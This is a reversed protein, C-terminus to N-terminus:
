LLENGKGCLQYLTNVSAQLLKFGAYSEFIAGRYEFGKSVFANPHCLYGAYDTSNYAIFTKRFPSNWKIQIGIEALLEGPVGVICVDKGITLFHLPEPCIDMGDKRVAFNPAEPDHRLRLPVEVMSTQLMVDKVLFRDPNRQANSMGEIVAAAIAEGMRQSAAFGIEYERPFMNGAAGTVFCCEAGTETRICDRVVGPFDATITCGALMQRPTHSALPHAAYNVFVDTMRRTEPDQFFLMGVEDDCIGDALPMLEKEKPLFHCVNDAITVVRRNVNVACRKAYYYLNVEHFPVEKLESLAEETWTFLENMYRDNLPTTRELRTQPGSHNHTTSILVDEQPLGLVSKAIERIHVLDPLDIGVLDYSLVLVKKKGDNLYLCHLYLDDHKAVAAIGNGYGGLDDGLQCSINKRISAIQLM